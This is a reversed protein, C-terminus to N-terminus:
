ECYIQVKDGEASCVDITMERLASMLESGSLGSLESFDVGNKSMAQAVEKPMMATLKIGSRMLGIPLRVDVKDGEKSDVHILMFKPQAVASASRDLPAEAPQSSALKQLLRDADEASIKGDALLQLVQKRENSM